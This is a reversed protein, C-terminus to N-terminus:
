RPRLAHKVILVRSQAHTAGEMGGCAHKDDPGQTLVAESTRDQSVDRRESPQDAQVGRPGRQRRASSRGIPSAVNHCLSRPSFRKLPLIGDVIEASAAILTAMHAPWAKIGGIRRVGRQAHSSTVSETRGSANTHMILSKLLFAKVPGIGALM